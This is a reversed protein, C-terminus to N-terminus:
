GRPFAGPTYGADSAYRAVGKTIRVEDVKGKFLHSNTAARAGIALPASSDATTQTGFTTNKSKMVGDVYTRLNTGDSEVCMRYKQGAVVDSALMFNVPTPGSTWPDSAWQFAVRDSPSIPNIVVAWSRGLGGSGQATTDFQSIIYQDTPSGTVPATPKETFVVDFELTFPAGATPVLRWDAHDAFTVHTAAAGDFVVSSNGTLPSSTSIQAHGSFTAARGNKEEVYGTTQGNTGEFGALFVVNAWNPDTAAQAPKLTVSVTATTSLGASNTSTLSVQYVRDSNADDPSAYTKAPLTLTSGTLTFKAADLGANVSWTVSDDATLPLSFAVGETVEQSTSFGWVPATTDVGTLSASTFSYTIADTGASTVGKFVVGLTGNGNDTFTLVAGQKTTQSAPRIYGVGKVGTSNDLPAANFTKMPMGGGTAYDARSDEGNANSATVGDTYGLMHADGSILCVKNAMGKSKMYDALENREYSFSWWKDTLDGGVDSNTLTSGELKGPASYPVDSILVVYQNNAAAADIESKFWQKQAAGLITKTSSDTTTTVASAESKLDLMIFRVVLAGVNVTFSHYVAGSAAQVLPGHPVRTRYFLSPVAKQSSDLAGGTINNAWYDHDSWMYRTSVSSYLDGAGTALLKALEAARIPAQLSQGSPVASDSYPTDGLAFFILPNRQKLVNWIDNPVAYNKACSGFAISFSNIQGPNPLTKFKGTKATYLTNGIRIGYYYQTNPQLGSLALKVVNLGGYSTTIASASYIPSSLDASTSVAIRVDTSAAALEAAVVVSGTDTAGTWLNTIATSDTSRTITDVAALDRRTTGAVFPTGAKYAVAYFPGYDATDVSYNGSADSTTTAVFSDDAKFVKVTAGGLAAGNADLTKGSLTPM